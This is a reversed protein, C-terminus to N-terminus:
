YASLHPPPGLSELAESDNNVAPLIESTKPNFIDERCYSINTLYIHLQDVDCLMTKPFRCPNFIECVTSISTVKRIGLQHDKNATRVVDPLISLQVLLNDINLDATYMDKFAACPVIMAGNSSDIILKEVDLVEYYQQRFPQKESIHHHGPAGDNLKKPVKRPRALTPEQTYAQAEVVTADCFRDFASDFRQRQM